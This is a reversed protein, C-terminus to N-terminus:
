RQRGDFGGRTKPEVPSRVSGDFMEAPENYYSYNQPPQVPDPQQHQQQQQQQQSPPAQM